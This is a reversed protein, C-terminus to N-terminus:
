VKVKINLLAELRDYEAANALYRRHGRIVAIAANRNPTYASKCFKKWSEGEKGDSDAFRYYDWELGRPTMTFTERAASQKGDVMVWVTVGYDTSPDVYNGSALRARMNAHFERLHINIEFRGIVVKRYDERQNSNTRGSQDANTPQIDSVTLTYPDITSGHVQELTVWEKGGHRRANELVVIAVELFYADTFVRNM